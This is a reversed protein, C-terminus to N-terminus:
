ENKGSFDLKLSVNDIDSRGTNLVSNCLKYECSPEGASCSSDRFVGSCDNRLRCDQKASKINPHKVGSDGCTFGIMAFFELFSYATTFTSKSM